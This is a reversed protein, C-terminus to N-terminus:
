QDAKTTKNIQCPETEVARSQIFQRRVNANQNNSNENGSILQKTSHIEVATVDCIRQEEDDNYTQDKNNDSYL